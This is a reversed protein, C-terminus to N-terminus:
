SQRQVRGDEFKWHWTTKSWGNAAADKSAANSWGWLTFDAGELREWATQGLHTGANLAEKSDGQEILKAVHKIVQLAAIRAIGVQGTSHFTIEKQEPLARLAGEQLLLWTQHKSFPQAFAGHSNPITKWRILLKILQPRMGLSDLRPFTRLRRDLWFAQGGFFRAFAPVLGLVDGKAKENLLNWTRVVDAAAALGRDPPCPQHQTKLAAELRDRLAEFFAQGSPFSTLNAPAFIPNPGLEIDALAAFFKSWEPRPWVQAYYVAELICGFLAVNAKVDPPLNPESAYDRSKTQGIKALTAWAVREVADRDVMLPQGKDPGEVVAATQHWGVSEGNPGFRNQLGKIPLMSLLRALGMFFRPLFNWYAIGGVLPVAFIVWITTEPALAPAIFKSLRGATMVGPHLTDFFVVLLDLFLASTIFILLLQPFQYFLRFGPELSGIENRVARIRELKPEFLKYGGLATVVAAAIAAYNAAELPKM